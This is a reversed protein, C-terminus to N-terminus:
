VRRARVRGNLITRDKEDLSLLADIEATHKCQPNDCYFRKNVYNGEPDPHGWKDTITDSDWKALQGCFPCFAFGKRIVRLELQDVYISGEENGDRILEEKHLEGVCEKVHKVDMDLKKAIEEADPTIDLNGEIKLKDAKKYTQDVLFGFIKYKDEQMYEEAPTENIHIDQRVDQDTVIVKEKTQQKSM